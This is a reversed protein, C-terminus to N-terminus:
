ANEKCTVKRGHDAHNERREKVNYKKARLLCNRCMLRGEEAPNKGCATCLGQERLHERRERWYGPNESARASAYARAKELCEKCLRRGSAAKRQGCRTCRGIEARVERLQKDAERKKEKSEEM